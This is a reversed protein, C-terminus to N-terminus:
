WCVVLPHHRAKHAPIGFMNKFRKCFYPSGKMGIAKSIASISALSTQLLKLAQQMRFREVYVQPSEPIFNKLYHGMYATSLPILNALVRNSLEKDVHKVIYQFIRTVHNKELVALKELLYPLPVMGDFIHRLLEISLCGGIHKLATDKAWLSDKAEHLVQNFIAGRYPNGAISFAPLSLLSLFDVGELITLQFNIFSFLAQDTKSGAEGTFSLYAAPHDMFAEKTIAPANSAGLALTVKSYPPIFLFDGPSLPKIAEGVNAYYVLGPAKVAILLCALTYCEPLSFPRLLALEKAVIFDVTLKELAGVPKHEM